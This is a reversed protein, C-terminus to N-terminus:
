VYPTLDPPTYNPGKLIKSDERLISKGDAGLKSMNSRHIERLAGDLDYDAKLALGILVYILDGIADLLEAHSGACNLEDYEEHILQSQLAISDENFRDPAEIGYATNFEKVLDIWSRADTM